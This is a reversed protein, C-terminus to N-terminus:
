KRLHRGIREDIKERPRGWRRLSETRVLSGRGSGSRPASAGILHTGTPYGGEHMTRVLCHYNPINQFYPRQLDTALERHLVDGDEGSTRFSVLTGCNGYVASRTSEQLQALTQTALFIHLGYKRAEALITSFDVGHIFNQVEDAVLLHPAPNVTGRALAAQALKSVIISGILSSAEGLRGKSLNCLLIQKRSLLEQFALKPRAQGLTVRMHPNLALRGAKNILPSLAEERMRPTWGDLVSFFDALAPFAEGVINAVKKRFNKDNLVKHLSILSVPKHYHMLATVFGQLLWESRPGWSDAWLSKFIHVLHEAALDRDEGAELADIGLIRDGAPDLYLVDNTRDSPILELVREVLSGHPDLVTVGKGSEIAEIIVSELLTSKGTGTKGFAAGHTRLDISFDDGRQDTGIIM